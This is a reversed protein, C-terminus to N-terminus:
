VSQTTNKVEEKADKDDADHIVHVSCVLECLFYLRFINSEATQECNIVVINQIFYTAM